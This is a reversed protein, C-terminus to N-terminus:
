CDKDAEPTIGTARSRAGTGSQDQEAVHVGITEQHNEGCCDRPMGHGTRQLSPQFLQFCVHLSPLLFRRLLCRIIKTARIILQSFMEHM